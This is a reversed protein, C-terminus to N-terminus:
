LPNLDFPEGESYHVPEPRPIILPLLKLTVSLRDKPELKELMAPLQELERELVEKIRDRLRQASVLEPKKNKQKATM